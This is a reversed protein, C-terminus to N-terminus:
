PTLDRYDTRLAAFVERALYRKQCRIIEPMSKGETTRRNAYERAGNHYRLRVIVATHLAQNARRDGGRHLRHRHTKGSSAPVPAVGCLHAFSAESRLRDPNDGITILLAAATDTGLGFVASTAPAADAVVAALNKKLQTAESRLLKTRTALSRLAMKTAEAPDSLRETNTPLDVCRALLASASLGRLQERLEDPATVILARLTNMSATAAKTASTSAVRLARIAEIAGSGRKPTSLQHRSLVARAAAYADLEDSKGRARRLRRSPHPVESVSIDANHLYRTLGAGYSASGEIGVEIITGCSSLWDQIHRYGATTAPFQRDDVQRGNDDIIAVHHTDAHTDVGAYIMPSTPGATM